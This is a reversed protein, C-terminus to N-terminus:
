RLEAREELVFLFQVFCEFLQFAQAPHEHRVFLLFLGPNAFDVVDDLEDSLLFTLVLSKRRGREIEHRRHARAVVVVVVVVVVFEKKFGVVAGDHFCEFCLKFCRFLIM